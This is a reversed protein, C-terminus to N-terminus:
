QLLIERRRRRGRGRGRGRQKEPLCLHVHSIPCPFLPDLIDDRLLESWSSFCSVSCQSLHTRVRQLRVCLHSIPCQFLPGSPSKEDSFCPFGGLSSFHNYSMPNTPQIHHHYWTSSISSERCMCHPKWWKNNRVSPTSNSGTIGNPRFLDVCKSRSEEKKNRLISCKNVKKIVM